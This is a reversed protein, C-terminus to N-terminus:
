HPRRLIAPILPVYEMALGVVWCIVLAPWVVAWILATVSSWFRNLSARMHRYAIVAVILTLVLWTWFPGSM